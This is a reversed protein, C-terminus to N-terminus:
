IVVLFISLTDRDAVLDQPGIRSIQPSFMLFSMEFCMCHKWESHLAPFVANEFAVSCCAAACQLVSCCVAVCQLVSCCVAVRQLVSCCVAVCQLVSCCVVVCQLVSCCVAVCQLM